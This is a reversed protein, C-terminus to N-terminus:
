SRRRTAISWSSRTARERAAGQVGARRLLRVRLGPRHRDPRRRHHPHEQPRHAQCTLANRKMLWSPRDFLYGIDHPGPAAEPHGQFCFAPKDTRALGQLTGDFLSVHTARVNAPLTKEDAFGHNQSTIEVRGTDLDEGPSQRRPPRVEDQLDERRPWRWSRTAWASASSRAAPEILEPHSSRTTAPEPDGPGNSLFVGDPKLRLVEDAPTQAPVM